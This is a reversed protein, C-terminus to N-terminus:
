RPGEQAPLADEFALGKGDIEALRAIFNWGGGNQSIALLIDNEGAELPIEAHDQDIAAGRDTPHSHVVEGNVWAQVGDDSGLRLAGRGGQPVNVRTYAYAVASTHPGILEMLNVIVQPGPLEVDRWALTEDQVEYTAALDVQSPAFPPQGFGDEQSWPWPGILKWHQIFGLAEVIRGAAPAGQAAAYVAQVDAPSTARELVMDLVRKAMGTEGAAEMASAVGALTPVPLTELAGEDLNQRLVEFAEPTPHAVLGELAADKREGDEALQFVALYAEGAAGEHGQAVLGTALEMLRRLSASRVKGEQARAYEALAAAAEPHGISALAEAAAAQAAADDSALAQQFVPMFIADGTEGFARLAGPRLPPPLEPYAAKM